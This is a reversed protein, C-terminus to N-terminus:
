GCFSPDTYLNFNKKAEFFWFGAVSWANRTKNEKPLQEQTARGGSDM